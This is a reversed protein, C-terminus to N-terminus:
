LQRLERTLELVRDEAAQRSPEDQYEEPKMGMRQCMNDHIALGDEIHGIRILLILRKLDQETMM